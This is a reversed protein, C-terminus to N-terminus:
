FAPLVQEEKKPVEKQILPKQVVEPQQEVEMKIEKEEVEIKIVDDEAKTQTIQQTPQEDPVSVM